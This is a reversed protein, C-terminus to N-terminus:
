KKLRKNGEKTIKELVENNVLDPNSKMDELKVFLGKDKMEGRHQELKDAGQCLVCYEKKGNQFYAECLHLRHNEVAVAVLGFVVLGGILLPTNNGPKKGDDTKAPSGGQILTQLYQANQQQQNGQSILEQAYELLDMLVTGKFSNIRIKQNKIDNVLKAFQEASLNDLNKAKLPNGGLNIKELKPFNTLLEAFDVEEIENGFLNLSKLKDKQPLDALWDLNKLKNKAANISELDNNQSLNGGKKGDRTTPSLSKPSPAIISPLILCAFTLENDNEIECPAYVRGVAEILVESNVKGLRYFLIDELETQSLNTRDRMERDTLKNEMQYALLQRCLKYKAKQLPTANRPLAWSGQGINKPDEAEQLAKEFKKDRPM